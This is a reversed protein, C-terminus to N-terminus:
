NVTALYGLCFVLGQVQEFRGFVCERTQVFQANTEKSIFQLEFIPRTQLSFVFRRCNPDDYVTTCSLCYQSGWNIESYYNLYKLKYYLINYAVGDFCTLILKALGKSESKYFNGKQWLAM